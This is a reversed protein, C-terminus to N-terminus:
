TLIYSRSGNRRRALIGALSYGILVHLVAWVTITKSAQVGDIHYSTELYDGGMSHALNEREREREREREGGM